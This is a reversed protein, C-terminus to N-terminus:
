EGPELSLLQPVPAAAAEGGALGHVGVGLLRVARRAAATRDLLAVARAGM